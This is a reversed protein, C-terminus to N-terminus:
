TMDAPQGFAHVPLIAKLPFTTSSHRLTPPLWRRASAAGRMIDDAAVRVLEPDINGTVPEVDVFLPIAGEYLACNASAVFSFPSTIVLDGAGIGCAIMSLHLAATGSSVAIAHRSGVYESFRKEFELLRPGLSLHNSTLVELVADREATTLDPSSMQIQTM